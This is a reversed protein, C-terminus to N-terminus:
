LRRDQNIVISQVTQSSNTLSWVFSAIWGIVTWGLLVNLAWIAATQRHGRLTAVIGPLFYCVLSVALIFLGAGVSGSGTSDM